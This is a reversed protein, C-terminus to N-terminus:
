DLAPLVSAPVGQLGWSLLSLSLSLLLLLLLATRVEVIVGAPTFNWHTARVKAPLEYKFAWLSLRVNYWGLDGLCGLPELDVKFRIDPGCVPTTLSLARTHTRIKQTRTQTHALKHAHTHTCPLVLV